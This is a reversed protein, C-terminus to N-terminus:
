RSPVLSLLSVGSISVSFRRTVEALALFSAFFAAYAAKKKEPRSKWNMHFLRGHTDASSRSCRHQRNGRHM